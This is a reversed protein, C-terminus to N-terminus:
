ENENRERYYEEMRKEYEEKTELNSYGILAYIFTIRSGCDLCEVSHNDIEIPYYSKLNDSGCTPCSMECRQFSEWM